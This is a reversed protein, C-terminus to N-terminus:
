ESLVLDFWYKEDKTSTLRYTTVGDKESSTVRYPSRRHFLNVWLKASDYAYWYSSENGDLPVIDLLTPDAGLGVFDTDYALRFYSNTETDHAQHFIFAAQRTDNGFLGAEQDAASNTGLYTDTSMTTAHATKMTNNVSRLSRYFTDSAGGRVMKAVYRHTMLDLPPETLRISLAGDPSVLASGAADLHLASLTLGGITVPKYFAIGQPTYRFPIKHAKAKQGEAVPLTYELQRYTPLLRLTVGAASGIDTPVLGKGQLRLHMQRIAAVEEKPSATMKELRMRSHSKRGELLITDAEKGMLLFEFDGGRANRFYETSTAFHHLAENRTDFTLTPMDIRLVDYSSTAPTDSLESFATVHGDAFSLYYSYGGYAQEKDPYYILRWSGSHGELLAQTEQLSAQTRKAASPLPNLDTQSCSGLLFASSLLLFLKSNM